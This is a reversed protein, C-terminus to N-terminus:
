NGKRDKIVNPPDPFNSHLKKKLKWLNGSNIGCDECNMGDIEENIKEFINDGFKDALETELELSKHKSEDDEKLRVDVWKAYQEEYESPKKTGIRIKKFSM